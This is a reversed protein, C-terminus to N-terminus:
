RKVQIKFEELGGFTEFIQAQVDGKLDLDLTTVTATGGTYYLWVFCRTM